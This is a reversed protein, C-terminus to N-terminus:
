MDAKDFTPVDDIRSRNDAYQDSVKPGAGFEGVFKYLGFYIVALLIPIGTIPTMTLRSLREEFSINKLLFKKIQYFM